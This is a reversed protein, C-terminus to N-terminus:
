LITKSQFATQKEKGSVFNTELCLQVEYKLYFWKVIQTWLTELMWIDSPFKEICLLCGILMKSFFFLVLFLFFSKCVM